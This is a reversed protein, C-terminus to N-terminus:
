KPETRIRYLFSWDGTANQIKLLIHNKGPKLHLAVVDDDVRSTRRIWKDHILEGNFWIKVGDDSGLGLWAKGEAPADFEAWAYGVTYDLNTIGSQLNVLGKEPKVRQWTLETGDVSQKEGLKPLVSAAGEAAFWDTSFANMQAARSVKSASVQLPKFVVTGSATESEISSVFDQESVKIPRLVLWQEIPLEPYASSSLWIRDAEAQPNAPPVDLVYDLAGAVATGHDIAPLIITQKLAEALPAILNPPVEQPNSRLTPIVKGDAAVEFHAVVRTVGHKRLGDARLPSGILMPDAHSKAYEIPRVASFYNARDKWSRSNDPNIMWLIDALQDAFERIADPDSARASILPVGERSMLVTSAGENPIFRALQRMGVEYPYDAILWPMGTDTAIKRHESDKHRIGMFVTGMLGPFVRQVRSHIAVVNGIMGWSEGDNHSGYLVLLLQPEPVTSLDAPALTKGKLQLAHGSLDSTALGTAAAWNSARAPRRTIEEYVLRSDERSLGRLLVRRGSLAGTKFLVWPGLIETPEGRFSTGQADKWSSTKATMPVALVVPLLLAFVNLLHRSCHLRSSVPSNNNM